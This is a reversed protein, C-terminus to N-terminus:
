KAVRGITFLNVAVGKKKKKRKVNGMNGFFTSTTVSNHASKVAKMFPM